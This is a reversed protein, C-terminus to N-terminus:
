NAAHDSKNCKFCRKAKPRELADYRGPKLRNIKGIGFIDTNNFKQIVDKAVEHDIYEVVCANGRM